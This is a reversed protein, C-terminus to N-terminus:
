LSCMHAHRPLVLEETSILHVQTDFFKSSVTRRWDSLLYSHIGFCLLLAIVRFQLPCSYREWDPWSMLQTTESSGNYGSLVPPSLLCNKGSRFSFDLYISLHLFSLTAPVSRSYSLLLSFFHCVQQHQRSWCLAHLITCAEASFSSCVPGASFSLTVEAGCLSSNALVGSSGKGFSFLVSGDRYIILDHPPISNLHALAADQRSLPSPILAPTHLPFPPSRLLLFCTGLLHSFAFFVEWSSTSPLMLSHTSPFARWFSRCFRPKVVLRTLGSTPFSAPLCLAREYSSLTFHTLSVRLPSLFAESLFLPIPSSTLCGSIAHSAGRHLREVETINTVSLFCVM